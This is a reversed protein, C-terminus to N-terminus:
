FLLLLGIFPRDMGRNVMLSPHKHSGDIGDLSSWDVTFWLRSILLSLREWYINCIIGIQQWFSCDITTYNDSMSLMLGRKGLYFGNPQKAITEINKQFPDYAVTAEIGEPKSTYM